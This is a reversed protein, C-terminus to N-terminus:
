RGIRAQNTLFPWGLSIYLANANLDGETRGYAVYLPGVPSDIGLYISGAATLDGFDVDSRDTWLQGGEISFGAYVPLDVPLVSNDSLRRQYQGMVFAMQRAAFSNQPLGSLNFLGGLQYFNQPESTAGIHQGTRATLIVTNARDAGFSFAAQGFAQWREFSDDGGLNDRVAEYEAFLFGGHTPFFLNDLGDYRLSGYVSGEQYDDEELADSSSFDVRYEGSLRRVGLRLQTRKRLNVGAALDGQWERVRWNGLGESVDFEPGISFVDYDRYGIHPVVFFRSYLDLTQYFEASFDITDGIQGRAYLEGGRSNLGQWLYSTGLNFESAGDLDTVLNLGFKLRDDGWARERANIHLVNVSDELRVDYDIIEWYDLAYINAIDDLLQRRDLPEGVQQKLRVRIIDDSVRSNNHVAILDIPREQPRAIKRAALYGSWAENSIALAALQPGLSLAADYGRRYIEDAQEWSPQGTLAYSPSVSALLSYLMALIALVINHVSKM